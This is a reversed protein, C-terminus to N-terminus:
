KEQKNLLDLVKQHLQEEEELSEGSLISGKTEKDDADYTLTIELPVDGDRKAYIDFVGKKGTSKHTIEYKMEKLIKVFAEKTRDFSAQYKVFLARAEPNKAHKIADIFIAACGTALAGAGGLLTVSLLISLAENRAKIM